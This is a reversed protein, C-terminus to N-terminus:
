AGFVILRWTTVVLYKDFVPHLSVVNLYMAQFILFGGKRGEEADLIPRILLSASQGWIKNDWGGVGSPILGVM